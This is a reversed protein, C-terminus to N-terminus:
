VLSSPATDIVRRGLVHSMRVMLPFRNTESAFYALRRTSHPGTEDAKIRLIGTVEKAKKAVTLVTHYRGIGHLCRPEVLDSSCVDSSCDCDFRTHRRRSSFVFRLM